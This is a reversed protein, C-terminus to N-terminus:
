RIAERMWFEFYSVKLMLRPAFDNLLLLILGCLLHSKHLYPRLRLCVKSLMNPFHSLLGAMRESGGYLEGAAVYIQTNRPYGLATLFIGVENPTLPCFGMARQESAHINKVKWHPTQERRFLLVVV